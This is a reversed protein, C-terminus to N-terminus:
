LVVVRGTHVVAGDTLRILYIGAPIPSLDLSMRESTTRVVQSIMRRGEASYVEALVEGSLSAPLAVNTLGSTPNPFVKLPQAALAVNGSSVPFGDLDIRAIGSIEMLFLEDTGPRRVLERHSGCRITAVTEWNEGGDVSQNIKDRNAAFLTDGTISPIIQEGAPSNAREWTIGGDSTTFDPVGLLIGNNNDYFYIDTITTGLDDGSVTPESWTRGGDTTRMLARRGYAFGVQEDNFEINVAAGRDWANAYVIEGNTKVRGFMGRNMLFFEDDDIGVLDGGDFGNFTPSLDIASFSAGGDNSILLNGIEPLLAVQDTNFAHLAVPDGEGIESQFMWNSGGNSSKYLRGDRTIAYATQGDPAFTFHQFDPHVEGFLYDYSNSAANYRHMSNGTGFALYSGDPLLKFRQASWLLPGTSIAQWTRGNDSSTVHIGLFSIYHLVDADDQWLGNHVTYQYIDDNDLTWNLGKDTSRWLKTFRDVTLLDGNNAVTVVTANQDISGGKFFNQGGDVTYYYDQDEFYGFEMESSVLLDTKIQTGGTELKTWSRGDDTSKAIERQQPLWGFIVGDISFDFDGARFGPAVDEWSQGGDFSALIGVSRSMFVTECNTGPLCNVYNAQTTFQNSVDEWTAGSDDTKLYLGCVGVAWGNGQSAIDADRFDEYFAPGILQEIRQARVSTCLLLVFSCLFFFRQNM